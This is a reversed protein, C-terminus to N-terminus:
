KVVRIGKSLTRIMKGFWWLQMFGLKRNFPLLFLNTIGCFIDILNGIAQMWKPVENLRTIKLPYPIM